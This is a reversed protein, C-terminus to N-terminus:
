GRGVLRMQINIQVSSPGDFSLRLAQTYSPIGIMLNALEYLSRTSNYEGVINIEGEKIGYANLAPTQSSGSFGLRPLASQMTVLYNEYVELGFQLVSPVDRGLVLKVSWTSQNESETSVANAASLAVQYSPLIGQLKHHDYFQISTQQKVNGHLKVEGGGIEVLTLGNNLYYELHDELWSAYVRLQEVSSDKGVKPPIVAARKQQEIREQESQYARYFYLSVLLTLILVVSIILRRIQAPHRYGAASFAKTETQFLHAKTVGRGRLLLTADIIRIGMENAGKVGQLAIVENQGLDNSDFQEIPVLEERIVFGSALNALYYTQGFQAIITEDELQYVVAMHEIQSSLSVGAVRSVKLGTPTFLCYRTGQAKIFRVYLNVRERAPLQPDAIEMKPNLVVPVRVGSVPDVIRQTSYNEGKGFM